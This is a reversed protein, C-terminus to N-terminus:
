FSGFIGDNFVLMHGAFVKAGVADSARYPLRRNGWVKHEFQSM